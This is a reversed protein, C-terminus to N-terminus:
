NPRKKASVLLLPWDTVCIKVASVWALQLM